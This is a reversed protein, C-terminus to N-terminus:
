LEACVSPDQEVIGEIKQFLADCEPRIEAAKTRLPGYHGMSGGQVRLMVAAYEAAFGPCEKELQQFALGDAGTGWNKLNAASCTVGEAFTDLFCGRSSAKHLNFLIPLETSASRSDWSTQWAGAEASDSSVNTAAMDRGTCHEGSSERMGLGLLLTYTHRLPESGAVDNRMGVAAFNSDFWSLADSADVGTKARSVVLVDSRTRNCVARAFALAVGKVYGRPAQGRDKWSYQSCASTGALTKIAAITARAALADGGAEPKVPDANPAADQASVDATGDPPRTTADVADAGCAAAVFCLGVATMCLCFRPATMATMIGRFTM